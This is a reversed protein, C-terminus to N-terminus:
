DHHVDVAELRDVVRVAVVDAVVREPLDCDRKLARQAGVVQAHAVGAIFEDHHQGVARPFGRVRLPALQLALDGFNLELNAGALPQPEGGARACRDERVVAGRVLRQECVGIM